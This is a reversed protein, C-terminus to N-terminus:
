AAVCWCWGSWSWKYFVSAFSGLKAACSLLSGCDGSLVSADCM